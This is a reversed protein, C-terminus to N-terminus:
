RGVAVADPLRYELKLVPETPAYFRVMFFYADNPTPLWNAAATADTPKNHSLTITLSGDKGYILGPTEPDIKYRNIPNTVLDYTGQGYVTVSWFTTVPPFQDKEFRMTYTQESTLAACTADTFNDAYRSVQTTPYMGGAFVMGARLMFDAGYNGTDGSTFLARGVKKGRNPIFALVENHGAEQGDLLAAQEELPLSKLDFRGDKTFGIKTLTKELFDKDAQTNPPDYTLIKSLQAFYGPHRFDKGTAGSKYVLVNDMPGLPKAPKVQISRREGKVWASLPLSLSQDQLKHVDPGDKAEDTVRIRYLVNVLKGPAKVQDLGKPVQGKWGPPTIMFTYPGKYSEPSKTSLGNGVNHFNRGYIDTLQYVYYTDGFKPLSVVMPEASLDFCGYSYYTDVNPGSGPKEGPKALQRSHVLQNLGGEQLAMGTYYRYLSVIGLGFIYSEKAAQKFEATVAPGDSMASKDQTRSETPLCGAFVAGFVISAVFLTL